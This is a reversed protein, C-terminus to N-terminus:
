YVRHLVHEQLKPMHKHLQKKEGCTNCQMEIEFDIVTPQLKSITDMWKKCAVRDNGCRTTTLTEQRDLWQKFSGSKEIMWMWRYCAEKSSM